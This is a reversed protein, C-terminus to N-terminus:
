NAKYMMNVAEARKVNNNPLITNDSYGSVIGASLLKSISEAAWEPIDDKDAFDLEADANSNIIRGLITMAEARTIKDYPNFTLTGDYNSRGQIIGNEYM